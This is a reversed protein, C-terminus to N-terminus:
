IFVEGATKFIAREMFFYLGFYATAGKEKWGM